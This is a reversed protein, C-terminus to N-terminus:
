GLNRSRGALIVHIHPDVERRPISVAREVMHICLVLVVFVIEVLEFFDKFIWFITVLALEYFDPHISRPAIPSLFDGIGEVLPKIGNTLGLPVNGDERSLGGINTPDSILLPDSSIWNPM